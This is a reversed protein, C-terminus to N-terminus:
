GRHVMFAVTAREAFDGHRAADKLDARAQARAAEPLEALLAGTVPGEFREARMAAEQEIIWAKVAARRKGYAANELGAAVGRVPLLLPNGLHNAGTCAALSGALGVCIVWRLM